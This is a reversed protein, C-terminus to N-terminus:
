ASVPPSSPACTFKSLDMRCPIEGDTSGDPKCAGRQSYPLPSIGGCGGVEKTTVGDCDCYYNLMACTNKTDDVCVLQAKPGCGPATYMAHQGAACGGDLMGPPADVPAAESAGDRAGGDTATATETATAVPADTGVDQWSADHSDTAPEADSAEPGTAADTSTMTPTERVDGTAPAVESRADPQRHIRMGGGCAGLALAAFGTAVALTLRIYATMSM